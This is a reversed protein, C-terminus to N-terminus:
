KLGIQGGWNLYWNNTNYLDTQIANNGKGSRAYVRDALYAPEGRRLAVRMLDYYRTGEFAFELAGEDVILDEVKEIQYALSDAADQCSADGEPMQYYKNADSFGCGRNHIGFQIGGTVVTGLGEYESTWALYRNDPFDFQSIFAHDSVSPYYPMVYEEIIKNTLGTALIQYAMRPYGARNLAEALRLYVMMRRYIRVNRTTYKYIYQGETQVNDIVTRRTGRAWNLYLRLDGVLYPDDQNTDPAYLTDRKTVNTPDVEILCFKQAASLKILSQSPVLSVKGGNNENLVGSTMYVNDSGSTADSGFSNFLNRLESYTGESPISDCPILTILEGQNTYSEAWDISWSWGSWKSNAWSIGNTSTAYYSNDGNRRNIYGYYCLAAEKYNGAWLHLDGLLIRIPFYFLRSNLGRIDGYGPYEVDELGQLDRIFYNCVQQIDYREYTAEAQEQTLIPETVFPVSGYNLVLQLYTWARYAKVAAYESLFLQENRNNRIATDTKAIYYNCNNIIAYYDRPQNYKNEDDMTFLAMDRLDASTNENIDMLDGRVEGLLITRDAIKQIKGMIGVVSYVTDTASNLPNDGEYIVYSSDQEFFDECSTLVTTSALAGALCAVTCLRRGAAPVNIYKKMSKM